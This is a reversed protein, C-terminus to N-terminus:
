KFLGIENARKLIESMLEHNNLVEKIADEGQSSNYVESLINGDVDLTTDSVSPIHIIFIPAVWDIASEFALLVVTDQNIKIKYNDPHCDVRAQMDETTFVYTPFCGAISTPVSTSKQTCGIITALSLVIFVIQIKNLDRLSKRYRM